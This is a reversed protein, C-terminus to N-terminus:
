PAPEAIIGLAVFANLRAHEHLGHGWWDALAGAIWSDPLEDWDAGGPAVNHFVGRVINRIAAANPQPMSNLATIAGNLSPLAGDLDVLETATEVSDNDPFVGLRIRGM